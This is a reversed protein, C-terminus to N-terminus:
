RGLEMGDLRRKWRCAAFGDVSLQMELKVKKM